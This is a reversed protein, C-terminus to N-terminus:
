MSFISMFQSAVINSRHQLSVAVARQKVLKIWLKNQRRTLIYRLKRAIANPNNNNLILKPDISTIIPAIDGTDAAIVPTGCALSELIVLPSMEFSSPLITCEASRYLLVLDNQSVDRLFIVSHDINANHIIQEIEKFYSQDYQATPSAIVLRLTPFRKKILVFAQTLEKVGKVPTLRGCFLIYKTPVEIKELSHSKNNKLKFFVDAVINPVIQIKTAAFNGKLLKKVFLKNHSSPIIINDSLLLANRELFRRVNGFIDWWPVTSFNKLVHFFFFIPARKGLIVCSIYYAYIFLYHTVFVYDVSTMSRMIQTVAGVTYYLNWLFFKVIRLPPNPFYPFLLIFRRFIRLVRPNRNIQAFAVLYPIFNYDKRLAAVLRVLAIWEGSAELDSLVLVRKM